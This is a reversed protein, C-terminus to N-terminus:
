RDDEGLGGPGCISYPVFEIYDIMCCGRNGQVWVSRFRLTHHRDPKDESRNYDVLIDALKRRYIAAQTDHTECEESKYAPQHEDAGNSGRYNYNASAGRYYGNNKMTRANEEREEQSMNTYDTGYIGGVRADSATYRFDMPMGEPEGDVYVQAIGRDLMGAYGMRLEYNGPPVCPLRFTIDYSTGMFNMEDGGMNWFNNHPRMAFMLTNESVDTNALYGAPIYYNETNDNNDNGTNSHEEWPNGALRINNTTFEPWITYMDIRIRTNFVKRRIDANYYIIDDLYYYAVNQSFNNAPATLYAGRVDTYDNYKTAYSHNLYYGGNHDVPTDGDTAIRTNWCRELKLLTFDQMTSIWETPNAKADNIGWCNILKDTSAFFRDLMHYSLFIRLPNYPSNLNSENWYLEKLTQGSETVSDLGLIRATEEDNYLEEALLYLNHINEDMIDPDNNPNEKFRDPYRAILDADPVVLVTYGEDRYEPRRAHYKNGANANSLDAENFIGGSTIDDEIEPFNGKVAEYNQDRWRTLEMLLGTRNLAEYFIQFDEHSEDLIESGRSTNPVLLHDVPHVVGNDVSDNKLANIINSTSNIVSLTMGDDDKVTEDTVIILPMDLENNLQMTARMDYSYLVTGDILSAKLLTDCYTAPIDEVSAYGMEDLYLQVAENTAPFFTRSGRSSLFQMRNGPAREVIRKFMSFDARDLYDSMMEGSFTYYSDAALDDECSTLLNMQAVLLLATCVSICIKFLRKM